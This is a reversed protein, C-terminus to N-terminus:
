KKIEKKQAFNILGEQQQQSTAISSQSEDEEGEDGDGDDGDDEDGEPSTTRNVKGKMQSGGEKNEEKKEEEEQEATKDVTNDATKDLKEVTKDKLLNQMWEEDIEHEEEVVKRAAEEEKKIIEKIKQTIKLRVEARLKETEILQMQRQSKLGKTDFDKAQATTFKEKELAKKEEEEKRKLEEAEMFQMKALNKKSAKGGSAMLASHVKQKREAEEDAERKALIAQKHLIWDFQGDDELSMERFLTEFLNRLYKYNPKQDFELDRM